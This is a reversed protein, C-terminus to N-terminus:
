PEDGDSDHRLVIAYPRCNHYAQDSCYPVPSSTVMQIFVIFLTANVLTLAVSKYIRYVKIIKRWSNKKILLQVVPVVLIM